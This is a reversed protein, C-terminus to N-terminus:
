GGPTAALRQADAASKQARAIDVQRRAEELDISAIVGAAALREARTLETEARALATEAQRSAETTVIAGVKNIQELRGSAQTVAASAQSVSARAEADDLQVLLEGAKVRHGEVARVSDVRGAVQTSLQVRTVVRVRGSAIVRQELASLSAAAITVVPGRTRAIAIGGAVILAGVLVIAGPRRVIRM